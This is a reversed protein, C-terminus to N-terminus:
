GPKRGGAPLPKNDAADDKMPPDNSLMPDDKV